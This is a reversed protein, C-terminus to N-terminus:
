IPPRLEPLPQWPTGLPVMTQPRSHAFAGTHVTLSVTMASFCLVCHSTATKSGTQTTTPHPDATSDHDPQAAMPMHCPMAVAVAARANGSENSVVMPMAWAAGGAIRLLLVTLTLFRLWAM